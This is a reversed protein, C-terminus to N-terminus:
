HIDVFHSSAICELGTVELRQSYRWADDHVGFKSEINLRKESIALFTVIAYVTVCNCNCVSPQYMYEISRQEM